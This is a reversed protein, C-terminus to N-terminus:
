FEGYLDVLVLLFFSRFAIQLYLAEEKSRRALGFALFWKFRPQGGKGEMMQYHNFM